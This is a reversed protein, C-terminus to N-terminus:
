SGAAITLADGPGIRAALLGPVLGALMGAAAGALPAPVVTLPAVVPVWGKASALLIILAVGLAAGALGGVLGIIASECVVHALIHRRRAGFARRLGFEGARERVSLWTVCAISLGGIALSVWGLTYFLSTLASMVQEGLQRPGSRMRVALQGPQDPSIAYPAQRAVAAAAGPRTRILVTPVAGAREDPPGWLALATASPLVVSRVLSRRGSAGSLIGTVLCPVDDVYVARQHRLGGIGLTKAAAAGLLCVQARHAQDWDDLAHGAIVTAGAAALFGPSAAIVPVRRAAGSGSSGAAPEPASSVVVPKSLLVQWFVGAAAVGHLAMLRREVDGPYPVVAPAPGARRPALWVHTPLRQTLATSVHGTVTTALGLATVFWAVGLLTGLCTVVARAPRAVIVTCAEGIADAPRLRTPASIRRRRIM